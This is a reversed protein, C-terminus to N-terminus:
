ASRHLAEIKQKMDLLRERIEGMFQAPKLTSNPAAVNVAVAPFSDGLDLPVAIGNIETKWKGFSTVCGWERMEVGALEIAAEVSPWAASDLAKIRGLVTKREAGAMMLIHTLGIATTTLPLRSGVGLNLTVSTSQSRRADVYLVSFEDRIGVAVMARTDNALQQLLEGGADRFDLSGLMSRGLTLTALGLRYRGHNEVQHLFGVRTLTHTLRAVTSRPLGCRQALDANSLREEGSRFVQLIRLGRALATVFDRDGSDNQSGPGMPGAPEVDLKGM